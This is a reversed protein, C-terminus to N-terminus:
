FRDGVTVFTTTRTTILNIVRMEYGITMLSPSSYENKCRTSNKLQGLQNIFMAFKARLRAPREGHGLKRCNPLAFITNYQITLYLYPYM